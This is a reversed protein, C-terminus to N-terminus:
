VVEEMSNCASDVRKTEWSISTTEKGARESVSTSVFTFRGMGLYRTKLITNLSCSRFNPRGWETKEVIPRHHFLSAMRMRVDKDLPPSFHPWGAVTDPVPYHAVGPSVTDNVGMTFGSADTCPCVSQSPSGPGWVWPNEKLSAPALLLWM